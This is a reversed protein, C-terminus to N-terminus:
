RLWLHTLLVVVTVLNDLWHHRCRVPCHQDFNLVPNLNSVVLRPHSRHGRLSKASRWCRREISPLSIAIEYSMSYLILGSLRSSRGGNPHNEFGRGMMHHILFDKNTTDEQLIGGTFTPFQVTTPTVSTDGFM